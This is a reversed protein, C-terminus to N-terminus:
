NVYSVLKQAWTSSQLVLRICDQLVQLIYFFSFHMFFAVKLKDFFFVFFPDNSLMQLLCYSLFHCFSLIYFSLNRQSFIYFAFVYLTFLILTSVLYLYFSLKLMTQCTRCKSKRGNTLLANQIKGNQTKKQKNPLSCNTDLSPMKDIGCGTQRRCKTSDLSSM